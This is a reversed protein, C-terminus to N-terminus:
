AGITVNTVRFSHSGRILPRLGRMFAAGIVRIFLLSLNWPLTNM